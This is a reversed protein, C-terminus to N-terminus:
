KIVQAPVLTQAKKSHLFGKMGKIPKAEAKKSEKIVISNIIRSESFIVSNIAKLKRLLNPPAAKPKTLPAKIVLRINKKRILEASIEFSVM